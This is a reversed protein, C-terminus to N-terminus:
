RANGRTAWGAVFGACARDAAMRAKIASPLMAQLKNIDRHIRAEAAHARTNEDLLARMYDGTPSSLRGEPRAALDDNVLRFLDDLSITLRDARTAMDAVLSDLREVLAQRRVDDDGLDFLQVSLKRIELVAPRFDDVAARLDPDEAIASHMM